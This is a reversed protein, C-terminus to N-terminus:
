HQQQSFHSLHQPPKNKVHLSPTIKLNNTLSQHHEPLHVDTPIDSPPAANWVVHSPQTQYNQNKNYMTDEVQLQVASRVCVHVTIKFDTQTQLTRLMVEM